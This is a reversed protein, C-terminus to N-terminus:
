LDSESDMLGRSGGTEWKSSLSLFILIFIFLGATLIVAPSCVIICYLCM